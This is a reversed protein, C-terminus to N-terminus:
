EKDRRWDFCLQSRFLDYIKRQREMFSDYCEACLEVGEFDALNSAYDGDDLVTPNDHIVKGCRDCVYEGDKRYM